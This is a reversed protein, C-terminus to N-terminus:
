LKSLLSLWTAGKQLSKVKNVIVGSFLAELHYLNHCPNCLTSVLYIKNKSLSSCLAQLAAKANNNSLFHVSIM